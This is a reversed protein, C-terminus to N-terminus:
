DIREGTSVDGAPNGTTQWPLVEMETKKRSKHDGCPILEASEHKHCIPEDLDPGCHTCAFCTHADEPPEPLPMWHTVILGTGADNWHPNACYTHYYVTGMFVRDDNEKFKYCCLYEGQKDPLRENVSIWDSM